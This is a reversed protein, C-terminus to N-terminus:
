YNEVSGGGYVYGLEKAIFEWKGKNYDYNLGIEGWGHSGITTTEIRLLITKFLTQRAM